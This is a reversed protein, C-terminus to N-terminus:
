DLNYYDGMLRVQFSKVDKEIRNFEKLDKVDSYEISLTYTGEGDVQINFIATFYFNNKIEFILSWFKLMRRITM